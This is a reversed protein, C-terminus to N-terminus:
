LWALLARPRGGDRVDVQTIALRLQKLKEIVYRVEPPQTPHVVPPATPFWDAM